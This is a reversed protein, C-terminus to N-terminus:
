PKKGFTIKNISYIRRRGDDDKIKLQGSSLFTNGYWFRTDLGSYRKLKQDDDVYQIEEKNLEEGGNGYAVHNMKGFSPYIIDLSKTDKSVSLHRHPIWSKQVEIPAANSWGMAGKSDFEIVFYHTYAFGDFVMRWQTRPVMGGNGTGVMVTYSEMIYTPYYAEGVLLYKGNDEIVKNPIMNYNITYEENKEAKREKKREVREQRRKTMYSTFNTLDLYNTYTSFITKGNEIKKLFIGISRDTSKIDKDSYTGSIIYSGDDMKSAFATAPFKDEADPAFTYNKDMKGNSFVYLKIVYGEKEKEKIFLHAENHDEDAEFSMFVYRRKNTVPINIMNKEGTRANISYVFPLDSQEGAIYLYDGVVRNYIMNTKKGIEGNFLKPQMNEGDLFLFEYQGKRTMAVRYLNGGATSQRVEGDEQFNVDIDQVKNLLTDYKSFTLMDHDKKAGKQKDKEKTTLVLGKKGIPDCSLFTISSEKEIEIRKVDLERGQAYVATWACAMLSTLIVFVKKKM